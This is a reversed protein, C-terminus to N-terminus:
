RTTACSRTSRRRCHSAASAASASRTVMPSLSMRRPDLSRRRPTFLHLTDLRTQLSNSSMSSRRTPLHPTKVPTPVSLIVPVAHDLSYARLIRDVSVPGRGTHLHVTGDRATPDILTDGLSKRVPLITTIATCKFKKNRIIRYTTPNICVRKASNASLMTNRHM